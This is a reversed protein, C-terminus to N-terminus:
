RPNQSIFMQRYCEDLLSANHPLLFRVRSIGLARSSSMVLAGTGWIALITGWMM